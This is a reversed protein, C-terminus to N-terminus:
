LPSAALFYGQSPARPSSGPALNILFSRSHLLTWFLLRMAFVLTISLSTASKKTHQRCCRCVGFLLFFGIVPCRVADNQYPSDVLYSVQPIVFLVLSDSNRSPSSLTRPSLAGVEREPVQVVRARHTPEMGFRTKERRGGFHYVFVIAHVRVVPCCNASLIFASEPRSVHM